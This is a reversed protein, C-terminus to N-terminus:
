SAAGAGAPPRASRGTHIGGTGAPHFADPTHGSHCTQSGARERHGAGPLWRQQGAPPPGGGVQCLCTRGNWVRETRLAM